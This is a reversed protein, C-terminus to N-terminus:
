DLERPPINASDEELTELEAFSPHRDTGANSLAQNQTIALEAELDALRTLFTHRLYAVAAKDCDSCCHELKLFAIRTSEFTDLAIQRAM